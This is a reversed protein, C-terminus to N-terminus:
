RAEALAATLAPTRHRNFHIAASQIRTKREGPGAKSTQTAFNRNLSALQAQAESIPLALEKKLKELERQHIWCAEAQGAENGNNSLDELAADIELSKAEIQANYSELLQEQERIRFHIEAQSRAAQSIEAPSPEDFRDPNIEFQAVAPIFLWASTSFM